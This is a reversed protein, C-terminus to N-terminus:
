TENEWLKRERNENKENNIPIITSDEVYYKLM